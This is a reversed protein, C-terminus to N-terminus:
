LGVDVPDLGIEQLILLAYDLRISLNYRNGYPKRDKVARVGLMRQVWSTDRNGIAHALRAWTGGEEIWALVHPRILSNEIYLDGM